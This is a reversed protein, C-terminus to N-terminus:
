NNEKFRVFGKENKRDLYSSKALSMVLEKVLHADMQPKKGESYIMKYIEPDVYLKNYTSNAKDIYSKYINLKSNIFDDDIEVKVNNDNNVFMGEFKGENSFYFRTFTDMVVDKFFYTGLDKVSFGLCQLLYLSRMANLDYEDFGNM